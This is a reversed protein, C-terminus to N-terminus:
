NIKELLEQIETMLDADNQDAHEQAIQLHVQAEATRGTKTLTEALGLHAKADTNNESIVRRYIIEAKLYDGNDLAIFGINRRCRGLNEQFDINTPSLTITKEAASLADEHSGLETFISSIDDFFYADQPDAHEQARRAYTVAEDIRGLHQLITIANNYCSEDYDLALRQDIIKLAEQFNEESVLGVILHNYFFPSHPNIAIGTQSTLILEPIQDEQELQNAVSQLTNSQIGQQPSNIILDSRPDEKQILHPLRRRQYKRTIGHAAIGKHLPDHSVEVIDTTTVQEGKTGQIDESVIEINAQPNLFDHWYVKNNSTTLLTIAHEPIEVVVHSIGVETLLSSGINTAAGCNIRQNTLVKASTGHNDERPIKSVVAQIREAIAREVRSIRDMDHPCRQRVAKLDSQLKPMDVLERLTKNRESHKLGMRRQATANWGERGLEDVMKRTGANILAKVADTTGLSETTGSPFITHQETPSEPPDFEIPLPHGCEKAVKRLFSQKVPDTERVHLPAVTESELPKRRETKNTRKREIM